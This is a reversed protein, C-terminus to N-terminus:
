DMCQVPTPGGRDCSECWYWDRNQVLCLEGQETITVDLQCGPHAWCRPRATYRPILDTPDSPPHGFDAEYARAAAALGAVQRQLVRREIDGIVASVLLTGWGFMALILHTRASIGASSWRGSSWRLAVSLAVWLAITAAHALAVLWPLPFAFILLSPGAWLSRLYLETWLLWAGTGILTSVDVSSRTRRWLTGVM